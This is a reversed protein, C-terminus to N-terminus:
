IGGRAEPGELTGIVAMWVYHVQQEQSNGSAQV